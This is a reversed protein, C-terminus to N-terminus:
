MVFRKARLNIKVRMKKNMKLIKEIVHMFRLDPTFSAEISRCM